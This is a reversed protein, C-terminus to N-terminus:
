GLGICQTCINIAKLLVDKMGGGAVGGIVLALGVVLLTYRAILLIKDKNRELFAALAAKRTGTKQVEGVREGKPRNETKAKKLIEVYANRQTKESREIVEWAAFIAALALLCVLVALLLRNVAGSHATFFEAKFIRLYFGKFLTALSVVAAVLAVGLASWTAITQIKRAQADAQAIEAKSLEDAPLNKRMKQLSAKLDLYAKPRAKEEPFAIQLAINGALAVVWLAVAPAIEKFHKAISKRTYAGSPASRYISWTQVIFLTGVLATLLAFVLTYVRCLKAQKDKTM